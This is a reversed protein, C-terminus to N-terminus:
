WVPTYEKQTGKCRYAATKSSSCQPLSVIIVYYTSIAKSCSVRNVWKALQNGDILSVIECGPIWGSIALNPKPIKGSDDPLKPDDWVM